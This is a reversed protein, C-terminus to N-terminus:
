CDVVGPQAFLANCKKYSQDPPEHKFDIDGLNLILTVNKGFLVPFYQTTKSLNTFAVGMPADWRGNFSYLLHGKTMDAAVGITYTSGLKSEHITM